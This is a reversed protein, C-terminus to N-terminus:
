DGQSQQQKQRKNSEDSRNNSNSRNHFCLRAIDLAISDRQVRVDMPFAQALTTFAAQLETLYSEKTAPAQVLAMALRLLKANRIVHDGCAFGNGQTAVALIHHPLDLCAVGQHNKDLFVKLKDAVVSLDESGLSSDLSLLMVPAGGLNVLAHLTWHADPKNWAFLVLPCDFVGPLLKHVKSGGQCEAQTAMVLSDFFRLGPFEDVLRELGYSIIRDNLCGEGRLRLVDDARLVASRLM